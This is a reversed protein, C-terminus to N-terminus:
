MDHSMVYVSSLAAPSGGSGCSLFGFHGDVGGLLIVDGLDDLWCEAVVGCLVVDVCDRVFHEVPVVVDALGSVVAEHFVLGLVEPCDDFGVGCLCPMFFAGWGS